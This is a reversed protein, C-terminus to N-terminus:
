PQIHEKTITKNRKLRASLILIAPLLTIAAAGSTVMTVAVLLGFRQLPVLSSFLLVTFGLSVSLVNIIIARGSVSVAHHISDEVSQGSRVEHNFHTIMHIAYDIGIGISVSGVLVTAIDLAIGAFGMFGFLVLLTATIPILSSLGNRISRLVITVVVIVLITAYILSQLQSSVISHDIRLYLSPLGTFSIDCEESTRQDIFAQFRDEFVKMSDVDGTNYTANILGEGLDYSVLQEMMDQGELLLWLQQIKLQDDPISYGEEMVENMECVLDAVSQAHVVNGTSEMFGAMEEMKNLVYPSQVDGKLTVYVPMSGGFKNRLVQEAIHNPDDKKFYDIIDVKRQVLTSGAISAIIVVLWAALFRSPHRFIATNLAALIRDPKPSHSGAPAKKRKDRAPFTAMLAPAFTLSLIMSFAIGLAMFIGFTGIMTLYSGFIFSIFGVMTTLAALFVPVMIYSLARTLSEGHDGDQTQIVRNVVHITYASGVALLIVPITDSIISISIGLLGMLGITWIISVAVTVLPLIVGRLNRFFLFLVLIIVLATIPALFLLDGMIIEGLSNIAFPLGGFYLKEELGLGTVVERIRRAVEMKDVGERIKVMIATFSADDSVLTGCYMEQSLTYAKLTEIEEETRPLSYKDVLKGVEIGWESGKIDMVNTLSTVTGVGPIYRLTDTIRRISELTNTRFVDESELGIIGIYNGGYQDGVKKFLVAKPDDEPLYNFVDPDVAIDKLFYAMVATILVVVSIIPKRHRLIWAAIKDM